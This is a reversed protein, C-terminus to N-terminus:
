LELFRENLVWHASECSTRLVLVSLLFVYSAEREGASAQGVCGLEFYSNMCHLVGLELVVCVTCFLAARASVVHM